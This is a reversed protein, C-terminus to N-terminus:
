EGLRLDSLEVARGAKVRVRRELRLGPGFTVQVVRLNDPNRVREVIRRDPHWGVLTYEGESVQDFSFDGREDTLAM